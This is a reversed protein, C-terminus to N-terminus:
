KMEIDLGDEAMPVLNLAKERQDLKVAELQKYSLKM